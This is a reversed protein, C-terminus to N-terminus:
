PPSVHRGSALFLDHLALVLGEREAAHQEVRALRPRRAACRESADLLVPSGARVLTNGGSMRAVLPSSPLM